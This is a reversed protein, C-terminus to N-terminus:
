QKNQFKRYFANRFKSPTTGELRNFVKMFYKDDSFGLKAAIHKVPEGSSLLMEKAANIKTRNIFDLLSMGTHKKFVSSIYGPHYNFEAAVKSVSLPETHHQRVWDMVKTIYKYTASITGLDYNLVFHTTIEMGLLSLAYHVLYGSYFEQRAADLLQRFQLIVREPHVLRGTEPIIYQDHAIEPNSKIFHLQRNIEEEGVLRHEYGWVTFHCWYYSLEGESPKYGKHEVGPFLLIYQNPKIDHRKGGQEIHLTGKTCLILVFEDPITRQAHLFGDANVLHGGGVLLLPHVCTATFYLM